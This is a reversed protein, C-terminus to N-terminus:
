SMFAQRLTRRALEAWDNWKLHSRQQCDRESALLIKQSKQSEKEIFAREKEKEREQANPFHESAWYLFKGSGEQMGHVHVKFFFVKTVEKRERENPMHVCFKSHSKNETSKCPQRWLTTTCHRLSWCSGKIRSTRPVTAPQMRRLNRKGLRLINGRKKKSPFVFM